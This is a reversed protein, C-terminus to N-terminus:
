SHFLMAQLRQLSLHRFSHVSVNGSVTRLPALYKNPGIPTSLTLIFNHGSWVSQGRALDCRLCLDQREPLHWNALTVQKLLFCSFSTTAACLFRLKHPEAKFGQHPLFFM